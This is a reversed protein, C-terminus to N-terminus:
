KLVVQLLLGCKRPGMPPRLISPGSYIPPTELWAILSVAGVGSFGLTHGKYVSGRNATSIGPYWLKVNVASYLFGAYFMYLVHLFYWAM